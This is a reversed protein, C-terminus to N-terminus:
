LSSVHTLVILPKSFLVSSGVWLCWSASLLFHSFNSLIFILDSIWCDYTLELPPPCLAFSAAADPPVAALLDESNFVQPKLDLACHRDSSIHGIVSLTLSQLIDANFLRLHKWFSSM